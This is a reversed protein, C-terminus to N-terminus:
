SKVREDIPADFASPPEHRPTGFEKRIAESLKETVMRQLRLGKERSAPTARSLVGSSPVHKSPEPILDYWPHEAAADDVIRDTRVLEPRTALMLSTEMIAAHEMAWGPFNDEFLWALEDDGFAALPRDISMVTVNELRGARRAQDIGEWIFNINEMHWNMVVMHRFGHRALEAVVDRVVRILTEGDLSTTGVFGQGGGSLAKSKFGFQLPPPIVIRLERTLGKVLELPLIADTAVPLHPGHQETSGIVWVPLYEEEVAQAIEQWTMTEMMPGLM